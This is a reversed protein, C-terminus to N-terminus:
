VMRIGTKELALFVGSEYSSNLVIDDPFATLETAPRGKIVSFGLENLSMAVEGWVRENRAGEEGSIFFVGSDALVRAIELIMKRSDELSIRPDTVINHLHVEEFSSAPFALARGDMRHLHIGPHPHARLKAELAAIDQNKILQGSQQMFDDPLFPNDVGHYSVGPPFRAAFNSLEANLPNGLPVGGHGVELVRRM